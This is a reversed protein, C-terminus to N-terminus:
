QSLGLEQGLKSLDAGRSGLSRLLHGVESGGLPGPVLGGLEIWSHKDKKLGMFVMEQCM